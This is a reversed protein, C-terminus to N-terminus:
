AGLRQTRRLLREEEPISPDTQEATLYSLGSSVSGTDSTVSVNDWADSRRPSRLSGVSPVQRAGSSAHQPSMTPCHAITKECLGHDSKYFGAHNPAIFSKIGKRDMKKQHVVLTIMRCRCRSIPILRTRLPAYARM